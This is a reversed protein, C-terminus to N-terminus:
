TGRDPSPDADRVLPLLRHLRVGHGCRREAHRWDTTAAAFFATAPDRGPDALWVEGSRTVVRGLLMLLRYASHEDYLLDSGLVLDWPGNAVLPAPDRWDCRITEVTLGNAEANVATFGLAYRSRDTVTVRAGAAAAALGVLGLGCGVELVRVNQLRWRSVISALVMGSTWTQAWVPGATGREAEPDDVDQPELPRWLVLRREGVMLEEATIDFPLM